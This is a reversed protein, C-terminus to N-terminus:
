SWRVQALTGLDCRVTIVLAGATSTPEFEDPHIRLARTAWELISATYAIALILL